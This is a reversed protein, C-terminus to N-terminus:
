SRSGFQRESRRHLRVRKAVFENHKRENEILWSRVAELRYFVRRGLKVYPPSLRLRRDRQCTRVSIHRIRAYAQEEVFEKLFDKEEPNESSIEKIQQM